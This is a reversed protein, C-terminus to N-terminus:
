NLECVFFTPESCYYDNWTGDGFRNLEMCNQGTGGGDNPQDVAWNTYDWPTGDQWTWTGEVAETGGTWWPDTSVANIAADLWLDETADDITVLHYGVFDCGLDASFWDVAFECLLYPDTDRYEVVCPCLGSDDVLGTCDDDIGNCEDAADPNITPDEDNCDGVDEVYGTPPSCATLSDAADGWGDGDDDAYFLDAGLGEDVPGDCDNDLGDCVEAAGPFTSPDGDDCDTDNDVYGTPAACAAVTDDGDGFGDGDTDAWWDLADLAEQDITGDCDDDIGNCLEDADPRVDPRDDDCDGDVTATGFPQVCSTDATGTGWGDADADTYWPGGDIGDEDVVGDCDDDDGDCSEPAGPFISADGDDCDGGGMVYGSPMDCAEVTDGDDGVGDGDDDAFWTLTDGAGDDIAGDCDDDLGNCLETADPNVTARGDDCDTDDTVTGPPPSCADSGTTPDGFGDGDTDDYYTTLALGDDAIGDCDQDIGDCVEAAGPFITGDADNCDTDNAVFGGPPTCSVLSFTPDGFGDLDDDLWWTDADIANDDAIGDCDQDTGDCIESAGPFVSPDADDCDTDDAVYGPPATCDDVTDTPDGFGDGDSDAYFPLPDVAEEDIDGDCDEDIGDCREAAGPFITPDTDDCDTDDAVHGPPEACASVPLAPDGFGDGDSDPWFTDSPTGDDITGDCDNDLGDCLEPAGPYTDDRSDDCDGAVAVFGPPPDCSDISVGDDGIGDGDGDLYWTTPDIADEDITTDCDDDVLNCVEPAGPFVAPDTDDCDNADAVAGKPQDCAISSSTPDGFGDGDNDDFWIRADIPDDDILSDCDNDLGDCLEPAGPFVSSRTDDCDSDDSVTGAPRQCALTIATPDGFNDGDGDAFWPTADIAEEDVDLDCDNDLFDCIEDAGPYVSANADNCDGGDVAYGAPQSCAELVRADNGFGDADNDLTYPFGDIPNDDITGDCDNDVSDCLEDALPHVTPDADDCDGSNNASGEPVECAFTPLDPDGYGDGDADTWSPTPDIPDDDITGNCDDDEDNCRESAGPNVLPNDDNCDTDDDVHRLPAACALTADDPDGYGDGDNDFFWWLGDIPDDDIAGNCNDDVSNCREDADPNIAPDTDDCDGDDTSYGAPRTCANVRDTIEGYGDGDDDGYFTIGDVPDEDVITDCDNDLGDCMEPAGTFVTPETDDCDRTNDVYGAPAVCQYASVAPDGAGDGDSDAYWTDGDVPNDDIASNCDDDVGNCREPAGPYVSADGDDCDDPNDSTGGPQDCAVIPDAPNGFGDGDGDGYWTVSDPADEDIDGDCDDDVDNCQEDAGPYADARNDNCDTGDTVFGKPQDCALTPVDPNGFGDGDVDAYWTTAGVADPGEDIADDCDDDIGNCVEDAGPFVAPDTDDCDSCDDGEDCPLTGEPQECSMVASQPDGFGDGDSDTLYRDADTAREDIIGDCDDDVLNCVEEGDPNIAPDDDDCDDGGCEVGVFGDLDDDCDSETSGIAVMTVALDTEVAREPNCGGSIPLTAEATFRVEATSYFNPDLEVGPVLSIDVTKRSGPELYVPLVGDVLAQVYSADEGTVHVYALEFATTGLNTVTVTAQPDDPTVTVREPTAYVVVDEVGLDSSCGAAM